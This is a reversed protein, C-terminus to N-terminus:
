LSRRKFNTAPQVRRLIESLDVKPRLKIEPNYYVGPPYAPSTPILEIQNIKNLADRIAAEPTDGSGCTIATCKGEARKTINCTWPATYTLGSWHNLSEFFLGPTASIESLLSEIM